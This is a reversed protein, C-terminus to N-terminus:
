GNMIYHNWDERKKVEKVEYVGEFVSLRDM